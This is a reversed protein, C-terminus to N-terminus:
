VNEVSGLHKKLINLFENKLSEISDVFHPRGGLNIPKFEVYISYDLSSGVICEVEDSIFTYSRRLEGTDVPCNSQIEIVCVMGIENLAMKAANIIADEFLNTNDILM